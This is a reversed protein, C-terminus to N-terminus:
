SDLYYNIVDIVDSKTIGEVEDLYNNIVDLVEGKDIQGDGDGDFRGLLTTDVPTTDDVDTVRVMVNLEDMTTGDGANVTVMYMNNTDADAPAEYDPSNRFTLVGAASISFDGADAGSVSWVASAANPGSATYTAVAGTGNEAYDPSSPGSIALGDEVDTVMVIVSRGAMNTGDDANVTVMYVNDGNMDVPSEYDPSNRFTLVGAASISFDGADAGSVSWVASAANPGSATYTAVAGTGNEAYDPSSPGSIALGDEVDTVTVIVSHGAMTTGDDANVTVMYMNNTDADAPAEYDPSNRFTLVGAASISFDGADAGSVSWVSSAANPGSTMYIAVAGTGNEAYDPSSPGSIALGDEVDTVTVIVSHGAMTTGDDANVTVMYMNNTDADAPAEYDPSNRFSLVGATSISFDGADAGSLPSWTASAANPGSPTYTAVPGTGNEAYDPSSPGSIALGDDVDTVMVIVSHGAMNTGDDANVTVMYMNNTDADAPAEYDPSNRFTLVGAASISFDGADAGSVSWVASAANPGSAMYTAVAGTGNEAYDPSSPGSIALGGRMIEPGENVDTVMITVDISASVGFSDTAIVTVMYTQKTEYDLETGAGVTIQGEAANESGIDFSSADPGGLTYTLVDGANPDEATVPGGDVAAPAASNEAITREAETNQTGTTDDDQDDFVPAKNRTDEAVTASLLEATKDETGQADTYRATATLTNGVDESTPTYTDSTAGVIDTSNRQWQWEVNTVGGDLDTLSATLAVGVRPQVASLSVTGDEEVNAVKVEVEREGRNRDADTASVTVEYVNDRDADEAMEYNPEEMFALVGGTITFDGADPGSLSWTIGGSNTDPDPDDASFNVVPDTDNENFSDPVMGTIAPPENVDDVVTIIVDITDTEGAPDTATVTVTRSDGGTEDADLEAGVMIQGTAQDIEFDDVDTGTLTYTLIDNNADNAVVPNGVNVGEDTNEGIMRTTETNQVDPMDPDQDPFVPDDNPLNVLQVKHASTMMARKGDGEPDDYEVTARLYYHVDNSTPRYAATDADTINAYSGNQSRSRSWQWEESGGVVLDPDSITATLEIGPYPALKDLTVTGAEDVNTVEITVTEMSMQRDADTAVVMVTYTNSTGTAGGGTAMEYNPSEMFSLVGDDKGIEFDEVDDDEGLSWTVAGANEPDVGTFTAVSGTGNELYDAEAPGTIEPGENVDTVMITVDISASVGFSDTAIVTVMYTQKTEYDLEARAGVTIQGETADESSIDFSSADPGGLTYTLEDSANPDEATVPGGGLPPLPDADESNEAITREAETNQTGTTDDDQDDFVPAKNRTDEAVTASLLEATKDETGQADTYTAMATLTEGQDESTPTYTDSTAGVIDTSNRQWQWEVNTVGGDLDTLSATLAVGVRPQLASLSVTGNEEVNAVKVEVEREGRHRDADTASVTVKYVNDGDADEPMEYNPEEMFALVGGTITFDGADPGSLSWTIGGSNTDPDPDDASFNVVPDTDNENFSDPVMGTIAPPENVDDVVTIIVDITDTEGAPDTATVTVTRSDGGTEDADLEAGVMIQGTAQDIEFDDVDTGTLTYTLIDNNADNAVVPNGVNVGEDTNEGIMRTTRDSQDLAMDPDQDPFVPDANPVNIAQVKHASTMMARKGDDEPDDYEVTARLYYSVDNSTPIYAETEADEINVYTGNQSRSRSWQWEESGGVVLDPDSITATLEIGPYPALKDLTVTGAEDVNTVEITVTEMSMQRDADTAVVMVTYTNSTGTAGGGTAMEYNPSEMFSLVGDDKGIMFDGADDGDLSWTVAGANEPDVGTFTAVSGTGNEAYEIMGDNQAQLLGGPLLFLLGAVLAALLVLFTPTLRKKLFLSAGGSSSGPSSLAQQRSGFGLLRPPSPPLIKQIVKMKNILGEVYKMESASM